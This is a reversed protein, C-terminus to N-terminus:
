TEEDQRTEADMNGLHFELFRLLKWLRFNRFSLTPNGYSVRRPNAGCKARAHVTNRAERYHARAQQYHQSGGAVHGNGVKSTELIVCGLFLEERQFTELPGRLDCRRGLPVTPLKLVLRM